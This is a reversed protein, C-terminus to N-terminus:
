MYRRHSFTGVDRPLIQLYKLQLFLKSSRSSHSCLHSCGLYSSKIFNILHSFPYLFFLMESSELVSHGLEGLDEINMMHFASLVTFFITSLNNMNIYYYFLPLFPQLCDRPIIQDMRKVWSVQSSYKTNKM